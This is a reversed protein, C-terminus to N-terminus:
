NNLESFIYRFSAKIKTSLSVYPESSYDIGKPMSTKEFYGKQKFVEETLIENVKFKNEEVEEVVYILAGDKASQINYEEYDDDWQWEFWEDAKSEALAIMDEVTLIDGVKISGDSDKGCSTLAFCSCIFVVLISLVKVIKKM